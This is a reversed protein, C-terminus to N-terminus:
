AKKQIAAPTANQMFLDYNSREKNIRAARRKAMGKSGTIKALEDLKSDTIEEQLTFTIRARGRNGKEQGQVLLCVKQLKKIKGQITRSDMNLVLAIDKLLIKNGLNENLYEVLPSSNRNLSKKSYADYSGQLLDVLLLRYRSVTFVGGSICSQTPIPKSQTNLIIQKDKRDIKIKGPTSPIPNSQTNVQNMFLETFQYKAAYNKYAGRTLEIYKLERLKKITRKVTEYALGTITEIDRIALAIDFKGTVKMIYLFAMSVLKLSNRSRGSFFEGSKIIFFAKDIFEDRNNRNEFYYNEANNFSYQLYRTGDAPERYKSGTGAYTSYLGQVDNFIYGNKILVVILAQDARSRDPKKLEGKKRYWYKSHAERSIKNRLIDRYFPTLANWTYLPDIGGAEQVSPTIIRKKFPQLKIFDIQTEDELPFIFIDGEELQDFTIYKWGSPHVSPFTLCYSNQGKIDIDYEKNKSTKVPFPARLYVHIGRATQIKFTNDAIYQFKENSEYLFDYFQRDDFDLIVLNDSDKGALVALNVPINELMKKLEPFTLQRNEWNKYLPKKEEYKVPFTRINNKTWKEVTKLLEQKNFLYNDM